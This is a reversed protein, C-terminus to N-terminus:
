VLNIQMFSSARTAPFERRNGHRHYSGLKWQPHIGRQHKQHIVSPTNVIIILYKLSAASWKVPPLRYLINIGWHYLLIQSHADYKYQLTIWWLSVSYVSVFFYIFWPEINKDNLLLVKLFTKILKIEFVQVMNYISSCLFLCFASSLM